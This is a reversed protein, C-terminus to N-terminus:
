SARSPQAEARPVKAGVILLWLVMAVEGLYLPTLFPSVVRFQGPIVLRVICAAVYAGGSVLLLIGLFRPFWGSKITLIGFPFLWLGWFATLLQGLQNGLRLFGLALAERQATTFASLHDAGSSLVLPATRHALNVVEAGAGVCVLAVLLRAQKRDVDRFLEYLTLALFIFVVQGALAALIGARYLLEGGAIRAATAAADGSVVFTSPVVMYGLIALISFLLYLVGAIRATARTSDM